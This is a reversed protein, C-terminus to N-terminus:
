VRQLDLSKQAPPNSRVENSAIVARLYNNALEIKASFSPDELLGKSHNRVFEDLKRGPFYKDLVAEEAFTCSPKSNFDIINTKFNKPFHMVPHKSDIGFVVLDADFVIDKVKQTHYGYKSRSYHMQELAPNNKFTAIQNSSSSIRHVLHIKEAPIGSNVLSLVAQYATSGSGLVVVKNLLDKSFHKLSAEISVTCYSINKLYVETDFFKRIQTAEQLLMGGERALYGMALSQGFSINIQQSIENEGILSSNLGCYTRLFHLKAAEDVLVALEFDSKNVSKIAEKIEQIQEPNLSNHSFAYIEFRNCTSILSVESIFDLNRISDLLLPFEDHSVKLSNLEEHTCYSLETALPNRALTEFCAGLYVIPM